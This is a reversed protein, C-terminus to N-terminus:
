AAKLGEEWIKKVKEYVVEPEIKKISEGFQSLYKVIEISDNLTFEIRYLDVEIKEIVQSPHIQQEKFKIAMPTTCYITYDIIEESGAGYAGFSHELNIKDKLSTDVPKETMEAQEIRSLRLIKIKNNDLTDYVFLYPAGGVFHLMLPHFLRKEVIQDYPSHYHCLFAKEKQLCDFLLKYTEKQTGQSKGLVTKAITSQSKLKSFDQRDFASLKSLLADETERCLSAVTPCGMTQLNQLAIIITQLHEEKFNISYHVQYGAEFYFKAPRGEIERLGSHSLSLKAIDREVTKRTLKFGDERLRQYLNTLSQANNEDTMLLYSVIRNLRDQTESDSNM